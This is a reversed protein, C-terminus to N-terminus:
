EEDGADVDEEDNKIGQVGDVDRLSATYSVLCGCALPAAAGM